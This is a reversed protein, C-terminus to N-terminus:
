KKHTLSNLFAKKNKESLPEWDLNDAIKIFQNLDFNDEKEKKIKKKLQRLKILNFRKGAQFLPIIFILSILPLWSRQITAYILSIIVLSCALTFNLILNKQYKTITNLTTAVAPRYNPPINISDPLNDATPLTNVMGQLTHQPLGPITAIAQTLINLDLNDKQWMEFIKKQWHNLTHTDWFFFFGCVPALLSIGLLPLWSMKIGASIISALVIVVVTIVLNRHSAARRDITQTTLKIAEKIPNTASQNM